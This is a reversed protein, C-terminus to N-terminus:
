DCVLFIPSILFNSASQTPTSVFNRMRLRSPFSRIPRASLVTLKNISNASHNKSVVVRCIRTETAWAKTVASAALDPFFIEFSLVAAANAEPLSITLPTNEHTSNRKRLSSLPICSECSPGVTFKGGVVEYNRGEEFLPHLVKM